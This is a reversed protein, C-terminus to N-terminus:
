PQDDLTIWLANILTNCGGSSQSYTAKPRYMDNNWGMSKRAQMMAM